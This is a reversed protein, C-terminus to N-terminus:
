RSSAEEQHAQKPKRTTSRGGPKPKPGSEFVTRAKEVEDYRVHREASGDSNRVTIQEEDAAVLLVTSRRDGAAGATLKLNVISGVARVFHEPTRLPRELGPSSVELTYRGPVPDAEDLARSLARSLRTIEDIGVGGAADITVRLVGAQHEVDVLDVAQEAAIPVALARVRDELSM